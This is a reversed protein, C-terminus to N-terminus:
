RFHDLMAEARSSLTGVPVGDITSVCRLNERARMREYLAPSEPLVGTRRRVENGQTKPDLGLVRCTGLSPALVGNLLRVMTTKGAGNPGLVGFVEGSQVALTVGDVATLSGYLRTLGDTQIAEM